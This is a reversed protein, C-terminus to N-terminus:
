SSPTSDIDLALDVAPASHTLAGVSIFDVGTSAVSQISDLTIGGSAETKSRQDILEVWRRLAEVTMNDLLIIDAGAAAAAAAQEVTDAEVEVKLSPYSARAREVAAAIPNEENSLVALHNDKIMVMDYLGIRHNQGGGCAVAYKELLRWGPITKRTDLIQCQFDKIAEVYSHTLTAVGCLRQAFNLAVREGSLISRAKGELTVLSTGSLVRDGDVVSHTVVVEPDLRHFVADFVPLGAVVLDERAVMRASWIVDAPIVSLSTVDGDGVDEALALDILPLYADLDLTKV